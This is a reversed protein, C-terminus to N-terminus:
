WTLTGQSDWLIRCSCWCVDSQRSPLTNEPVFLSVFADGFCVHFYFLFIFFNIMHLFIVYIHLPFYHINSIFLCPYCSHLYLKLFQYLFANLALIFFVFMIVFIIYFSDTQTQQQHFWHVKAPFVFILITIAVFLFLLSICKKNKKDPLIRKRVADKCNKINYIM